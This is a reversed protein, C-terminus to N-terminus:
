SARPRVLFVSCHAHRVVAESVSGMLLRAVGRRGHSGMVICDCARTAADDIITHRPDGERVATTVEFGREQLQRAADGVLRDAAGRAGRIHVAVDEGYEAGRAFDLALPVMRDLELVHLVHVSVQEPRLMSCVEDLAARSFASDDVALLITM